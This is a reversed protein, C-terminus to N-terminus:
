GVPPYRWCAGPATQAWYRRWRIAGPRRGRGSPRGGARPPRCIGETAEVLAPDAPEFRGPAVEVNIPEAAVRVTRSGDPNAYTDTTADRGVLKSKGPEYSKPLRELKPVEPALPADFPVNEFAGWRAADDVVAAGDTGSAAGAPLPAPEVRSSAQASPVAAVATNVPGTVM